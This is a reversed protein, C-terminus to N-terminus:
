VSYEDLLLDVTLDIMSKMWWILEDALREILISQFYVSRAHILFVDLTIWVRTHIEENITDQKSNTRRINMYEVIPRISIGQSPPFDHLLLLLLLNTSM